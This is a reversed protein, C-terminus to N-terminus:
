RFRSRSFPTVSTPWMGELIMEWKVVLAALADSPNGGAASLGCKVNSENRGFLYATWEGESSRKISFDNGSLAIALIAAALDNQNESLAELFPAHHEEFKANCWAPKDEGMGVEPAGSKPNSKSKGRSMERVEDIFSFFSYSCAVNKCPLEIVGYLYLPRGWRDLKLKRPPTGFFTVLHWYLHAVSEFPCELQGYWRQVDMYQM